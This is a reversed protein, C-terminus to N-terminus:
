SNMEKELATLSESILRLDDNTIPEPGWLWAVSEASAGAALLAASLTEQDANLPVSVRRALRRATQRRLQIAIHQVQGHRRMLRGKGTVTEIAPVYTPIDETVLRGLRQGRSWGLALLSLSFLTVAPLAWEPVPIHLDTSEELLQTHLFIIPGRETIPVKSHATLANMVLAANGASTIHENTMIEPSAFVARYYGPRFQEIFQYGIEEDYGETPFATLWPDEALLMNQSHVTIEKSIKAIESRTDGATHSDSDDFVGAGQVDPFTQSTSFSPSGFTVVRPLAAFENDMSPTANYPHLVVLTPDSDLSARAWTLAQMSSDTELVDFGQDKLVEAVAMAGFGRSNKISYPEYSRSSKPILTFVIFVLVLIGAIKLFPRAHSMRTQLSPTVVTAM